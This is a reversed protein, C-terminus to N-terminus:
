TYSYIVYSYIVYTVLIWPGGVWTRRPVNPDVRTPPPYNVYSPHACTYVGFDARGVSPRTSMPQPRCTHPAFYRLNRVCTPDGLLGFDTLTLVHLGVLVRSIGLTM